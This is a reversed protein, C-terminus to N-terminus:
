RHPSTANSEYTGSGPGPLEAARPGTYRAVHLGTDNDAWYILGDKFIPYTRAMGHPVTVAHGVERPTYPNSIDIARIGHGYWGNFVINAFVTPNHNQQAVRRRPQGDPETDAQTLCEDLRNDPIAFAGIMVPTAEVEVSVIRAHMLPCGFNEDTLWVYAPRAKTNGRVRAPRGPVFVASHIGTPLSNHPPHVDIRSRTMLVLYRAAKAAPSADSALFAALGPDDNVVMHLCDNAVQALMAADISGGGAVVTSRQNCGAEGAIIDANTDLAVGESNLVYFGANGGAAYVREGDDSVSLSHLMNNQRTQFNAAQESRNTLASFDAFRGDAFLGTADPRENIPPGGVEQLSFGALFRPSPLIAGTEEDTIALVIADPIRLSPDSREPLGGGAFMAVYVLVRNANGPDHWLFFEHSPGNFDQIESKGVPLCTEMDIEYTELWGVTRTGANRVLIMRDRGDSPTYVLARLERDDFGENGIAMVPIEGVEVPPVNAPDPQIRFINIARTVGPGNRHGVFICNGAIGLGRADGAGDLDGGRWAGTAADRVSPVTVVWHLHEFNRFLRLERELRAIGARADRESSMPDLGGRRGVRVSPMEGIPTDFTSPQCGAPDDSYDVCQANASSAPWAMVAGAMLLASVAFGDLRVAM